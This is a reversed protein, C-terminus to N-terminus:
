LPSSFLSLDLEDGGDAMGLIDIMNEQAAKRTGLTGYCVPRVSRDQLGLIQKRTQAGTKIKQSHHRHHCIVVSYLVLIDAARPLWRLCMSSHPAGLNSIVSKGM